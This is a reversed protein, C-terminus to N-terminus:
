TREVEEGESFHAWRDNKADSGMEIKRKQCEQRSFDGGDNHTKQMTQKNTQKDGVQKLQTGQVM